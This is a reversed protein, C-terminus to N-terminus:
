LMPKMLESLELLKTAVSYNDILKIDIEEKLSRKTTSLEERYQILRSISGGLTDKGTLQGIIDGNSAYIELESTLSLTLDLIERASSEIVSM